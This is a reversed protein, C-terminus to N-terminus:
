KIAGTPCCESDLVFAFGCAPLFLPRGQYAGVAVQCDICLTLKETVEQLYM